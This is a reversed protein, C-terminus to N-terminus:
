KVVEYDVYEGANPNIKNSKNNGSQPPTNQHTTANFNQTGTHKHAFGIFAYKLLLRLAKSLIFLVVFLIILFKIM